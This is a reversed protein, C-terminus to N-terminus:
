LVIANVAEVLSVVSSRTVLSVPVGDVAALCTTGDNRYLEINVTPEGEVDLYLTLSIETKESPTDDTFSDASLGELASQLESIDIEEDNYFFTREGDNEESTITYEVGDLSIDIRTVSTFDAPVVELHRFSDYGIEILAAYDDSSIEYVIQSEGVRVYGVPEEDEGTEPDCGINLVFSQAADDSDTYNVTVTLTPTDLGFETLEEDTVNYTVFDTLDLNKIKRMYTTVRTTDLPQSTGSLTTFYVDDDRYSNGGDESYDFSFEDEGSFVVENITTFTPVTDDEILDNLEVDFVDLPDNSVLYVNGDGISVYRESDMTSYSGLTIEYDTDDATLDITCLPSKLGYQDYDEVNEIVFSAGFSQFQELLAEIKTEDVPFAEDGDYLWTEDKHFSLDTDEYTWSLTQVSETPLELIIQDSNKIEEKKVEIRSVILTAICVVVLVGLLIYLKKSRKM